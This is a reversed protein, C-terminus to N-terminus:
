RTSSALATGLLSSVYSVLAMVRDYEMRTPGIIALMGMRQDEVGYSAAVVSCTALEPDTNESGIATVVGAEGTLCQDLIRLMRRKDELAAVLAKMRDFDAPDPREVLREAGDVYLERESGHASSFYQAGIELARRV